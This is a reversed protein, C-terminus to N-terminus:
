TTVPELTVPHLKPGPKAYDPHFAVQKRGHHVWKRPVSYRRVYYGKSAVYRRDLLSFWDRLQKKSAFGFRHPAMGYRSGGEWPPEGGMGDAPPVPHKETDVGYVHPLEGTPTGQYPGKGDATELRYVFM